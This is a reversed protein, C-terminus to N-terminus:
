QTCCGSGPASGHTPDARTALLGNEETLGPSLLQPPPSSLVLALQRTGQPRLSSAGTHDWVGKVGTPPPPMVSWRSPDLM